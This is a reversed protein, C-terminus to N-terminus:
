RGRLSEFEQLAGNPDRRMRQLLARVGDIGRTAHLTEIAEAGRYPWAPYDGARVYAWVAEQAAAVDQPEGLAATHRRLFEIEMWAALAENLVTARQWADADALPAHATALSPDLGTELIAHFHEHVLTCQQLLRRVPPVDAEAEARFLVRPTGSLALQSPLGNRVAWALLAQDAAGADQPLFIGYTAVDVIEDAGTKPSGCGASAQRLAAVLQQSARQLLQTYAQLSGSFGLKGDKSWRLSLGDINWTSIRPGVRSAQEAGIEYGSTWSLDLGCHLWYQPISLLIRLYDAVFDTFGLGDSTRLGHKAALCDRTRRWHPYAIAAAWEGVVQDSWHRRCEEPHERYIASILLGACAALNVCPLAAPGPKAGTFYCSQEFSPLLQSLTERIAALAAVADSLSLKVFETQESVQERGAHLMALSPNDRTSDWASRAEPVRHKWLDISVNRGFDALGRARVSAVTRDIAGLVRRSLRDPVDDPSAEAVDNWRQPNREALWRFVVFETQYRYERYLDESIEPPLPPVDDDRTSSIHVNRVHFELLLSQVLQGWADIDREADADAVPAAADVVRQSRRVERVTLEDVLLTPVGNARLGTAWEVFAQAACVQARRRRLSRRTEGHVLPLVLGHLQQAHERERLPSREETGAVAPEAGEGGAVTAPVVREFASADFFGFHFRELEPPPLPMPLDWYVGRVFREGKGSRLSLAHRWEDEVYRSSSSAPSWYLQFIDSKEILRLLAPHWEQGALLDDRDVFVSIGLARYVAVCHGVIVGDVHAYSAFISRYMDAQAVTTAPESFASDPGRVRVSIVLSAVPLGDVFIDIAGDLVRDLASAGARFRFMVEQLDEHWAVEQSAPNFSLLECRPTLTLWTGRLASLQGSAEDHRLGTRQQREVLRARVEDRRNALHLYLVLDCWTEAVPEAPYGATVSLREASPVKAATAAADEELRALALRVRADEAAHSTAGASVDQWLAEASVVSHVRGRVAIARAVATGRESPDILVVDIRSVRAAVRRAAAETAAADSLGDSVVEVTSNPDDCDALQEGAADLASALDTSGGPELASLAADLQQRDGARGRFAIEPAADFAIVCVNESPDLGVVGDIVAQRAALWKTQAQTRGVPRPAPAATTAFPDDMSGSRDLLIIWM